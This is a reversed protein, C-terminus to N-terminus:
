TRRQAWNLLRLVRGHAVRALLQELKLIHANKEAVVAHLRQLEQEHAAALQEAPSQRFPAPAFRLGGPADYRDPRVGSAHIWAGRECVQIQQFGARYLYASLEEPTSSEGMHPPRYEPPIQRHTEFIQWGEESCLNFNDVFVRGGPRLVRCAELLYNYRDWEDLHMFVVTCYVLDVSADDIPGLDFGSLEVLCVNGLGALRRRAHRDAAAPRDRDRHDTCRPALAAGVRGIGCGIELVVDDPHVGVTQELWYSTQEAAAQIAAEDVEGIVHATARRETTALANWVSKYSSRPETIM